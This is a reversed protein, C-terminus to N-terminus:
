PESSTIVEVMHPGGHQRESDNIDAETKLRNRVESEWVEFSMDVFEEIEEETPEDLVDKARAREDAAIPQDVVNEDVFVRPNIHIPKPNTEPPDYNGEETYFISTGSENEFPTSIRIAASRQNKYEPPRGNFRLAEIVDDPDVVVTGIINRPEKLKKRAERVNRGVSQHGDLDRKSSWAKQTHGAVDVAHYDVAEAPTLDREAVMTLIENHKRM